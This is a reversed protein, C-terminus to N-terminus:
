SFYRQSLVSMARNLAKEVSAAIGVREALTPKVQISIEYIDAHKSQEFLYEDSTILEDVLKVDLARSGFWIEGTAVSDIDVSDRNEKVFTKFLEHTDELEERFKERAKDTNEGFMTLTRKYEGATHMEYDINSKELLRHFNPIQAIVGISGIIAFPAALIKDAICAMMYGGSAAVKDVCITLPIGKNRIRSLQSAAYGYSHVMGGSSELKILVEDDKNAETLILSILKSLQEADSAKVDGDFETVFIRKKTENAEEKKAQKQKKKEEKNHKKLAKEDLVSSQMIEHYEEFRENIKEVEIQEEGGKNKHMASSAIIAVAIVLVVLFTLSKALFLGYESLFEM